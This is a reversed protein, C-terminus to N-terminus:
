NRTVHPSMRSPVLSSGTIRGTWRRRCGGIGTGLLPHSFKRPFIGGVYLFHDLLHTPHGKIIGTNTVPLVRRVHKHLYTITYRSQSFRRQYLGPRHTEITTKNRTRRPIVAAGGGSGTKINTEYLGNLTKRFILLPEM